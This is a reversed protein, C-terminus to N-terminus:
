ASENSREVEFRKCDPPPGYMDGVSAQQEGPNNMFCRYFGVALQCCRLVTRRDRVNSVSESLAWPVVDAGDSFYVTVLTIM